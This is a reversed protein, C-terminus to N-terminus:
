KVREMSTILNKTAIFKSQWSACTGGSENSSVIRRFTTICNQIWHSSNVMSQHLVGYFPRFCNFDIDLRTLSSVLCFSLFLLPSLLFHKSHNHKFGISLSLSLFACSIEYQCCHLFFAVCVLSYVIIRLLLWVCLVSVLCFCCEGAIFVALCVFVTFTGTTHRCGILLSHLYTTYTYSNTHKNWKSVCCFCFIYQFHRFILALKTIFDSFLFRWLLFITLSCRFCMCNSM